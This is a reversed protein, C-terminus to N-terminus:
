KQVKVKVHDFMFGTEMLPDNFGKMKVTFPANMPALWGSMSSRIQMQILEGFGQLAPETHYKVARLSAAFTENWQPQNLAITYAMFPRPPIPAAHGELENDPVGKENMYAVMAVPINNKPHIDEPFFGVEVSHAEALRERMMALHRKLKEGGTVTVGM